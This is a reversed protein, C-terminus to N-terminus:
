RTVTNSFGGVLPLAQAGTDRGYGSNYRLEIGACWVEAGAMHLDEMFHLGSFDKWLAFPQMRCTSGHCIFGFYLWTSM